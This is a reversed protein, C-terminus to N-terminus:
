LALPRADGDTPVESSATPVAAPPSGLLHLHALITPMLEDMGRGIRGGRPSRKRRLGTAARRAGSNPKASSITDHASALKANAQAVGNAAQATTAAAMSGSRGASSTTVPAQSTFWPM